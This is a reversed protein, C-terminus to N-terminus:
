LSLMLISQCLLVETQESFIIFTSDLTSFSDIDVTEKSIEMCSVNNSTLATKKFDIKFLIWSLDTMNKLRGGFNELM